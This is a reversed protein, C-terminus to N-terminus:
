QKKKMRREWAAINDNLEETPAIRDSAGYGYDYMDAEAYKKRFIYTQKVADIRTVFGHYLDSFYDRNVASKSLLLDKNKALYPFIDHSNKSEEESLEIIVLRPKKYKLIDKLLVYQLNRGMRCYGFNALHLGPLEKEIQPENFSHITHSSGIFAVDVPTNNRAMRDYIWAGHNYCDDKIYNYYFIRPVPIFFCAVAVTIPLICFRLIKLALKKM